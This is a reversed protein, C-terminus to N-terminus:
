YDVELAKRPSQEASPLRQLEEKRPQVTVQPNPPVINAVMTDCYSYVFNQEMTIEDATYNRVGAIGTVEADDGATRFFESRYWRAWRSWQRRDSDMKTQHQKIIAPFKKAPNYKETM